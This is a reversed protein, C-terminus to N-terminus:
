QGRAKRLRQEIMERYPWGPPAAALAKEFDAAARELDGQHQLIMGRNAYAEAFKENLRVAETYDPIAKEREGAEQRLLGRAFYAAALDREIHERSTWAAPALELAKTLDAIAGDLDSSQRKAHGRTSWGVPREPRLRIHETLDAIAGAYDGLSARVQGRMLLSWVHRPRFQLAKSLTEVVETERGRVHYLAHATWAWGRADTAAAESYERLKKAAEAYRGEAFELMGATLLLELKESSRARVAALDADIQVRLERAEANEELVDGDSRHRLDEYRELQNLARELHATAFGPAAEIAKSLSRVAPEREREMAYARGTELLAEALGPCEILAKRLEVRAKEALAREEAETGEPSMMLRDLSALHARGAELHPRAREQRALAEQSASKAKEEDRWKMAVAGGVLAALLLGAAGVLFIARRAVFSRARRVTSPPRALVPEGRLWRGLDDGFQSATAYRHEPSKEMAKACVVVLEDPAGPPPELEVNLVRQLVQAETEAVHPPRGALIEYLIAGLAYIDARGSVSPEGRAQEPAMYCFTGMVTGERTLPTATGATRALGFDLVKTEGSETVLINGPKLDRHVVGADHAAQVGRAAQELAAVGGRLDRRARHLPLGRVLEMVLFLRAEEEGVDLVKVLNPHSLQALVQAERLLRQRLLPDLADRLVKVAVDRRLERDVARYVSAMGGEGLKEHLEYRSLSSPKPPPVEDSALDRMMRTLPDSM